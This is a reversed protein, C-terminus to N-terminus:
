AKARASLNFHQRLREIKGRLSADMRNDDYQLIFGARLSPDIRVDLNVVGETRKAVVQRLREQTAETIPQAVIVEVRTIHKTTEYQHVFSTAIFPMVETRKKDVVLQLFRRTSTTVKSEGTTQVASLLLQVKKEDSFVPNLLTAVLTKVQLFSRHLQLMEQYVYEAEKNEEAFHLLAKAYRSAVIGTNM